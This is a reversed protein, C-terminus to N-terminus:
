PNQTPQGSLLATRIAQAASKLADSPAVHDEFVSKLAIDMSTSYAAMQPIAPYTSGGELARMAQAMLPDAVKVGRIAPIHGISALAQQTQPSLFYQMFKWAAQRAAPSARSNLFLSESQVFGSLHGNDYSPWPDVALNDAGIAESLNDLNWTGDIIFGVRGEEFLALDRDSNTETPGAQDFANLLDIWAVGRENDFAPQGDPQVLQGGLGNLHAGSYFFGRELDAGVVQGKTAAKSLSVLDNFTAPASPILSRNRYLVVGQITYPLAIWKGQYRASGLAALNLAAQLSPDDLGPLDSLQGASYLPPGWEQPGLLLVPGSGDQAEAQFRTRLDEAPVYLLDFHINPNEAQFEAIIQVLTPAQPEDWSHWLTLSVVPQTPTSSLPQASTPAEAPAPTGAPVPSVRGCGAALIVALGLASLLFSKRRRM